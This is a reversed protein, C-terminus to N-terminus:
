LAKIYETMKKYCYTKPEENAESTKIVWKAEDILYLNEGFTFHSLKTREAHKLSLKLYNIRSRKNIPDYNFKHPM